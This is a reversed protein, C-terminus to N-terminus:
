DFDNAARRIEDKERAQNEKKHLENLKENYIYIRIARATSNKIDYIYFKFWVNNKTAERYRGGSVGKYGGFEIGFKYELGEKVLDIDGQSISDCDDPNILNQLNLYEDQCSIFEIAYIKGKNLTYAKLIGNVGGITTKEAGKYDFKELVYGKLGVQANTLFATMTFVSLIILKKMM